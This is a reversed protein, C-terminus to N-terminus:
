EEEGDYPVEEVYAIECMGQASKYTEGCFQEFLKILENFMTSFDADNIDFQTEDTNGDPDYYGINFSHKQPKYVIEGPEYYVKGDNFRYRWHEYDEGTMTVEGALVFPALKKMAGDVDNDRSYEKSLWLGGDPSDAVEDFNENLKELIDEPIETDQNLEVHGTGFVNYSM